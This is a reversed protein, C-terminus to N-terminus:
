RQQQTDATSVITVAAAWHVHRVQLDQRKAQNPLIGCALLVDVSSWQEPTLHMFDDAHQAIAVVHVKDTPLGRRLVELEPSQPGCVILLNVAAM